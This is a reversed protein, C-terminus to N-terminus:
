EKVGARNWALEVLELFEEIEESGGYAIGNWMGLIHEYSASGKGSSDRLLMGFEAVSAELLMGAANVEKRYIDAGFAKQIEKSVSTGPDKYRIKLTAWEDKADGKVPERTQYKLDISKDKDDGGAWVVEYLVTVTHGAGVEGADKTDDTFDEAQLLRNEYGLLRYEKIWVPNFEVQLKVDEAVTVLTSGLEDVLVRKAEMLSDIYTYNGNGSDALAEMKNDKLNGQGFGLVSLYIGSKRKEEVLSKLQSESTEGINLDGDTALIIRNNGESIFNEEALAYAAKIGASGYTGGAAELASLADLIRGKEDGRAGKLVIREMGAYTVISVRDKEGLNEVLMAFAQKLLPLKDPSDMSGSVDLLFVLNSKPSQSFDIDQTRIGIRVLGHTEEWPCDAGDITIGFVEDGKPKEYDYHFYNLMEELRVAGKPIEEPRKGQRLMRRVNSYSATDVDASFTSLPSLSTQMFRNEAIANYEETDMPPMGEENMEEGPIVKSGKADYAGNESSKVTGVANEKQDLKRIGCGTMSEVLLAFILLFSATRLRKRM